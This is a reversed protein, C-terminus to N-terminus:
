TSFKTLSCCSSVSKFTALAALVALLVKREFMLWSIRVGIFATSPSSSIIIRSLVSGGM